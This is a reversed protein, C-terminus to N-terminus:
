PIEKSLKRTYGNWSKEYYLRKNLEDKKMKRDKYIFLIFYLFLGFIFFIGINYFYSFLFSQIILIIVFIGLINLAYDKEKYM